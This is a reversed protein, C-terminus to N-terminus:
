AMKRYMWFVCGAMIVIFGAYVVPTGPDRVIQIGAYVSGYQDRKLETNYFNLGNWQFPDNVETTGAAIVDSGRSLVLGVRARKYVPNQYAVLKFDYPFGPPLKTTGETDTDGIFRDGQFISLKMNESPIELSGATVTYGELKFSEGTKLTFLGFKENGKLVGIKVAVPYYEVDVNKVTLTAGLPVNRNLDWRYVSDVGTGEYVNVTAIYGSASIVSGTIILVAGTHMILVPKPLTNVRRVTCFILNVGMCGIIIRSLTSAHFDSEALTGPVLSLCLLVFLVLALQRSALFQFSSEFRKSVIPM